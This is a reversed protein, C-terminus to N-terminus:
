TRDGAADDDEVASGTDRDARRPRAPDPVLAFLYQYTFLSRALRLGARDIARILRAVPSSTVSPGRGAGRDIVGLPLGTSGEWVPLYGARRAQRLFSRRTFFRLHGRDLIGRREYDFRGLGVRLRPYWHAFNPISALLVGDDVLVELAARMVADPDRVHEIVDAAVVVDFGVGVQPPIGDELDAVVMHDVREHVGPAEALDVGTVSHGHERLRAALFGDACGLDLVKSPPRDAMWEVLQEHSSDLGSKEEYVESAFATEGSGFGMKHLRYRAVDRTVERAYKIGDVYCIEDGYYTPIPVEVIRRGAEHMQLIIQTDFNFGDDNLEFPIQRLADVNYARYGSHWESLEMGVVRNQMTTLLRNGVFKYVPMGGRLADTPRIMRSGFVADAEGAVLPAVIDPLMEPAYQGDGHLLVVVDLDHEIAWRYGAKQNGGYGLNRPQRIVTLPLSADSAQYDLGREYTQDDSFDDAVLVQSVRPRFESPIRDLVAALTSEANYAVVLIGIRTM